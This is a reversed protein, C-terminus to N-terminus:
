PYQSRRSCDEMVVPAFVGWANPSWPRFYAFCHGIIMRSVPICRQRDYRRTNTKTCNSPATLFEVKYAFGREIKAARTMSHFADFIDCQRTRTLEALALHAVNVYFEDNVRDQPVLVCPNRTPAYECHNLDIAGPIEASSEHPTCLVFTLALLAAIIDDMSPNGRRTEGALLSPHCAKVDPDTCRRLQVDHRRRGPSKAPRLSPPSLDDCTSTSRGLANVTVPAHTTRTSGGCGSDDTHANTTPTTQKGATSVCLADTPREGCTPRGLHAPSRAPTSSRTTTANT